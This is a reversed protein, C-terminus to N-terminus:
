AFRLSRLWRKLTYYTGPALQGRHARAARTRLGAAPPPAARARQVHAVGLARLTGRRGAAMAGPRLARGFFLHNFLLTM